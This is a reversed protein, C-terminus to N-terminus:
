RKKKSILDTIDDISESVGAGVHAVFYLLISLPVMSMISGAVAVVSMALLVGVVNVVRNALKAVRHYELLEKHPLSKMKNVFDERTKTM